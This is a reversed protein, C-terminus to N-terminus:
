VGSDGNITWSETAILYAHADGADSVTTYTLGNAGLPVTSQVARTPVGGAWGTWGTLTNDYNSTSLATNDLMSTMDTILSIDWNGIDQNFLTADSFM